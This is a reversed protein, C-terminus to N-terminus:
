DNDTENRQKMIRCVTSACIGFRECITKILEGRLRMAVVQQEQADTLKRVARHNSVKLKYKKVLRQVQAASVGRMEGIQKFTIRQDLLAQVEEQRGELATPTATRRTKAAFKVLDHDRAFRHITSDAVNLKVGVQSISMGSALMAMIQHIHVATLKRPNGNPVTLGHRKAFKVLGIISCGLSEAAAKASKHMTLADKIREIPMSELPSRGNLVPKPSPPLKPKAREMSPLIDHSFICNYGSVDLCEGTPQKVARIRAIFSKGKVGILTARSGNRSQITFTDMRGTDYDLLEIKMGEEFTKM